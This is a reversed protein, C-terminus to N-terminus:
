STSTKPPECHGGGPVTILLGVVAGGVFVVEDRLGELHQAVYEVLEIPTRYSM